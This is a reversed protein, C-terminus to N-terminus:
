ILDHKAYLAARAADTDIYNSPDYNRGDAGSSNDAASERPNRREGARHVAIACPAAIDYGGHDVSRAAWETASDSVM